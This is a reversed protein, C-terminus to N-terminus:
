LSGYHFTQHDDLFQLRSRITLIRISFDEAWKLHKSDFGGSGVILRHITQPWGIWCYASNLLKKGVSLWQNGNCGRALQQGFTWKSKPWLRSQDARDSSTATQCTQKAFPLWNTMKLHIVCRWSTPQISRYGFLTITEALRERSNRKRIQDAHQARKCQYVAEANSELTWASSVRVYRATLTAKEIQSM